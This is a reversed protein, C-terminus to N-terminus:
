LIAGILLLVLGAVSAVVRIVHFAQWRDRLQDWNGPLTAVTWTVIQEVGGMARLVNWDGAGFACHHCAGM